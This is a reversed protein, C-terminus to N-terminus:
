VISLFWLIGLIYKGEVNNNAVQRFQIPPGSSINQNSDGHNWSNQATLHELM